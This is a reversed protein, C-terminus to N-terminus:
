RWWLTLKFFSDAAAVLVMALVQIQGDQIRVRTNGRVGPLFDMLSFTGSYITNFLKATFALALALSCANLFFLPFSYGSNNVEQLLLLFIVFDMELMFDSSSM